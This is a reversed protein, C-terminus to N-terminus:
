PPIEEKLFLIKNLECSKTFFRMFDLFRHFYSGSKRFFVQVLWSSSLCSASLFVPGAGKFQPFTITPEATLVM